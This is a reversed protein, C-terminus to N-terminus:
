LMTDIPDDAVLQVGSEKALDAHLATAIMSMVEAESLPAPGRDVPQRAESLVSTDAVHIAGDMSVPERILDSLVTFWDSQDLLEHFDLVDDTTIPEGGPREGLELPLRWAVCRVGAATLSDIAWEDAFKVETMRCVPCRFIYTAVGTEQNIRIHMDRRRVDVDGCESCATRILM